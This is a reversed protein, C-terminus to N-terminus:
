TVSQQWFLQALKPYDPVNIGTPTWAVRDPSRYFEVLGGLKPARDTFSQPPHHQRPHVDPRCPKEQCRRDEVGRVACLALRGQSAGGPHVQVADLLRSRTVASSRGELLARRRHPWGGCCIAKTTSPTTARARPKVMEATFATYWFVQQAVNGQSLAPLSQYFDYDAAGPPAYKRLWEDWKRIPTSRPRATPRAAAASRPAPRIARVKEM